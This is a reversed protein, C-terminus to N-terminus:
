GVSCHTWIYVVGASFSVTQMSAEHGCRLEVSNRSGAVGGRKCLSFQSLTNLATLVACTTCAQMNHFADHMPRKWAHGYAAVHRRTDGCAREALCAAVQMGLSPLRVHVGMTSMEADLLIGRPPCKGRVPACAPAAPVPRGHGGAKATRASHESVSVTHPSWHVQTLPLGQAHWLQAPLM